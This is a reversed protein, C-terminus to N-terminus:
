IDMYRKEKWQAETFALLLRPVQGRARCGWYGLILCDNMKEFFYFNYYPTIKM